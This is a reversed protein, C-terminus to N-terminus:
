LKLWNKKIYAIDKLYGSVHGEDIHQKFTEDGDNAEQVMFDVLHALRKIM